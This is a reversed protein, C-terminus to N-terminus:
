LNSDSVRDDLCHHVTKFVNMDGLEVKVIGRSSLFPKTYESSTSFLLYKLHNKLSWVKNSLSFTM